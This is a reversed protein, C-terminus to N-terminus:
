IECWGAQDTIDPRFKFPEPQRKSLPAGLVGVTPESVGLQDGTNMPCYVAVVEISDNGRNRPIHNNDILAMMKRSPLLATALWTFRIPKDLVQDVALICVTAQDQHAACGVLSM